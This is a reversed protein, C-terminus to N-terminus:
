KDRYVLARRNMGGCLSCVETEDDDKIVLCGCDHCHAVESETAVAIGCRQCSGVGRVVNTVHQISWKHGLINCFWGFM